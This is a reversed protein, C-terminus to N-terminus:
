MVCSCDSSILNVLALFVLLETGPFSLSVTMLALFGLDFSVLSVLPALSWLALYSSLM